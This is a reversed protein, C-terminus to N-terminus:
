RLLFSCLLFKKFNREKLCKYATRIQFPFSSLDIDVTQFIDCYLLFSAYDINRNNLTLIRNCNFMFQKIFVVYEKKSISSSIKKYDEILRKTVWVTDIIKKNGKSSSTIGNVNYRYFYCEADAVFANKAINFLVIRNVTDEFLNKEPFHLKEWLKAKYLKGWPFGPLDQPNCFGKKIFRGSQLRGDDWCYTYKGQVIDVKTNKACDLLAELAGEYLFDDSDVFMVYEADIEKLAANRAGSQGKNEQNIIKLNSFKEYKKLITLSGDTSGDNVAIVCFKYKTKQNMISNLCEELYKEVNYVPVIIQVDYQPNDKVKNQCLSSGCHDPYVSNLYGLPDIINKRIPPIVANLFYFFIKNIIVPTKRAIRYFFLLFNM